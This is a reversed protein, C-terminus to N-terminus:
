AQHAPRLLDNVTKVPNFTASPVEVFITSWDSMAGNWLGPLELAKLDRGGLSKSSIFGTDHDVYHPLDFRNGETDRLYCVLDVPNFHTASQMMAMYEANGPDIQTSELIQPSVSGDANYALFPGGGPEGDNRVMGCVRLPRNLKGVLYDALESESLSDFLTSDTNLVEQMFKIIDALDDASYRGDRLKELYAEIRDHAQMLVGALVQKYRITTERLSDPVVNDINKIFVVTSDIDGLNAILAGHGGPRFVLRGDEDRFPTNDLNAALTDTSPKQESLSIDYKVGFLQEMAPAAVRIKDEFLKRHDASVTFHLKVMGNAAATQAGEALHEELPTRTVGGDYRHFTLMAKPLAGYNMGESSIIASIVEKQRGADLMARADAGHLRRLTDDLESKFPLEDLGALLKDVPSGAPAKDEDGNVFAFLAKFMRSAAGSAPVFKSVSGGDALYLKWRAIAADQQEPTLALIGKGVKASGALRLYPFGTAFRNIQATAAEPSVGHSALQALDKDTFM